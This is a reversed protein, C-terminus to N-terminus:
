ILPFHASDDKWPNFLVAGSKEVHKTNRTVFYLNHEIATVALLTDIVSPPHGTETKVRATVEGWRALVRRSVPLVRDAFREEFADRIGALRAREPDAPDLLFIGKDFEGFSLLSLFLREEPQSTFWTEVRRVCNRKNLESIINTDLLWGIM